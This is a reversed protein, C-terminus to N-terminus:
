VVDSSEPRHVVVGRIRDAHVTRGCAGCAACYFEARGMVLDFFIRVGQEPQIIRNSLGRRAAAPDGRNLTGLLAGCEHCNVRDRRRAPATM